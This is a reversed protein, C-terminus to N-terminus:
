SSAATPITPLALISAQNQASTGHNGLLRSQMSSSVVVLWVLHHRTSTSPGKSFNGHVLGQISLPRISFISPEWLYPPFASNISALIALFHDKFTCIAREAWNQCHMDPPVLQFKTNWKFTIAKKYEVSAKNDLIQLDVSLGGQQWAHWLPTTPQLKIAESKSEFVQQLILNGDAHFAIM